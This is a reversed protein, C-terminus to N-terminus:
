RASGLGYPRMSRSPLSVEPVVASERVDADAAVFGSGSDEPDAAGLLGALAVTRRYEQAFLKELLEDVRGARAEDITM